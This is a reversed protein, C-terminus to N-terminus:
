TEQIHIQPKRDWEHVGQHAFLWLTGLLHYFESLPKSNNFECPSWPNPNGPWCPWNPGAPSSPETPGWPSGPSWPGTPICPDWPCVPGDPSFPSVRLCSKILVTLIQLVRIQDRCKLRKDVLYKNLTLKYVVSLRSRTWPGNWFAPKQSFKNQNLPFELNESYFHQNLM